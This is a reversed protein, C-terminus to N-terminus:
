SFLEGRDVVRAIVLTGVFSLLGLVLAADLYYSEGTELTRMLLLAIVIVSAADMRVLRTPM